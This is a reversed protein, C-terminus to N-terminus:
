YVARYRGSVWVTGANPVDYSSLVGGYSTYFQVRNASAGYVLGILQSGAPTTLTQSSVIVPIYDFTGDANFPLTLAMQGTGNHDTWTISALFDVTKGRKSYTGTQTTYTGTGSTSLGIIVPTYTADSYLATTVVNGTGADTVTGTINGLYIDNYSSASEINIPGATNSEVDGGRWVNYMAATSNIGYGTNGEGLYGIFTNFYGRYARVGDGGNNSAQFRIATGANVNPGGVASPDDIYLGHGTNAGASCSDLTWFNCNVTGSDKGIRIGNGGQNNASVNRLTNTNGQLAIGDGGNGAVGDVQMDAVLIASGNMSILTGNLSAAKKICSLYQGEGKLTQYSGLTITSSSILTGVSINIVSHSAVSSLIATTSDTNHTAGWWHPFVEKVYGTGFTVDGPNFGSFVQHLGADFPGNITLTASGSKTIVSERNSAKLLINSPVTIATSITIPGDILITKNESGIESIATALDTVYSTDSPNYGGTIILINRDILADGM